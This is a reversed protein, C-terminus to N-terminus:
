RGRVREEAEQRVNSRVKDSARQLLKGYIIRSLKQSDMPRALIQTMADDTFVRGLTKPRSAMEVSLRELQTGFGDKAQFRLAAENVTRDVLQTWRDSAGLNAQKAVAELEADWETTQTGQHRRVASALERLAEDAQAMEAFVDEGHIDIFKTRQENNWHRMRQHGEISSAVSEGPALALSQVLADYNSMGDPVTGGSQRIKERITPDAADSLFDKSLDSNRATKVLSKIADYYAEPRLRNGLPHKIGENREFERARLDMNRNDVGTFWSMVARVDSRPLVGIDEATNLVFDRTTRVAKTMDGSAWASSVEGINSLGSYALNATPVLQVVRGPDGELSSKVLQAVPGGIMQTATNGLMFKIPASMWQRGWRSFGNEGRIMDAFAYALASGVNGAVAAGLTLRGAFKLSDYLDQKALQTPKSRVAALSDHVNKLATVTNATRNTAWRVYRFLKNMIPSDAAAPGEGQGRRSSLLQVYDRQYQTKLVPDATGNMLAAADVDSYQMLRRLVYGDFNTSQQNGWRELQAKAQGAFLTQKGVETLSGPTSVLEALRSGVQSSEAFIHNGMFDEVLGEQRVLNVAEQMRQTRTMGATRPSMLLSLGRGLDRWTGYVMPQSVFEPIDLVFSKWITAARAFTEVSQGPRFGTIMDVIAPAPSPEKGAVRAAYNRFAEQYAENVSQPGIDSIRSAAKQVVTNFGPRSQMMNVQAAAAPDNQYDKIFQARAAPSHDEGFVEAVAIGTSQKTIQQEMTPMVDNVRVEYTTGNQATWRHPMNVFRRTYDLASLAEASDNFEMMSRQKLAQQFEFELDKGTIPRSTYSQTKPDWDRVQVQPNLDALADFWEQRLANKGLLVDLDRGRTFPVVSRAAKTLPVARMTQTQPDFEYRTKGADVATDRMYKLSAQMSDVFQQEMANAPQEQGNVLLEWRARESNPGISIMQDQWRNRGLLKEVPSRSSGQAKELQRLAERAPRLLAKAQGAIQPTRGTRVRRMDDALAPNINRLLTRAMQNQTRLMKRAALGVQGTRAAEAAREVFRVLKDAGAGLASFAAGIDIFGGERAPDFPLTKQQPKSTKPPEATGRRFEPLPPPVPDGNQVAEDRLAQQETRYEWERLLEPTMSSEFASRVSKQNSTPRAARFAKLVASGFMQNTVTEAADTLWENGHSRDDRMYSWSEQFTQAPRNGGESRSDGVMPPNWDKPVQFGQESASAKSEAAAKAAAQQLMQERRMAASLQQEAAREEALRLNPEFRRESEMRSAEPATRVPEGAVPQPQESAQLREAMRESVSKRQAMVGFQEAVTRMFQDSSQLRRVAVEPDMAQFKQQRGAFKAYLRSLEKYEAASMTVDGVGNSDIIAEFQKRLPSDKKMWRVIDAARQASIPTTVTGTIDASEVASAVTERMEDQRTYRKRVNAEAEQQRLEQAAIEAQEPAQRQQESAAQAQEAENRRQLVEAESLQELEMAKRQEAQSGELLASEYERLQQQRLEEPTLPKQQVGVQDLFDANSEEQQKARKATRSQAEAQIRGLFGQPSETGAAVSALELAMVGDEQPNLRDMFDRLLAPDSDLAEFVQRMREGSPGASERAITVSEGIITDVLRDPSLTQKAMLWEGVTAAAASDYLQPAEGFTTTATDNRWPADLSERVQIDGDLRMRHDAGTAPDRWVGPTVEEFGLRQFNRQGQAARLAGLLALNDLTQRAEPGRLVIADPGVREYNPSDPSVRKNVGELLRATADTIQLEVGAGRQSLRVSNEGNFTLFVAGPEDTPSFNPEWQGRLAARTPGDAWAYQRMVPDQTAPIMEPLPEQPRQAETIGAARDAELQEGSRNIEENAQRSERDQRYAEAFRRNRDALLYTELRNADPRYSKWFAAADHPVLGKSVAIGAATGLFSMQLDGWAESDGSLGRQLLDWSNPDLTMFASAEFPAAVLQATMNRGMGMIQGLESSLTKYPIEGAEFRTYAGRLAEVRQPSLGLQAAAQGLREGLQAIPLMFPAMMASHAAARVRESDPSVAYAQAVFAGTTTALQSVNRGATALTMSLATNLGPNRSLFELGQGTQRAISAAGPALRAAKVAATELAREAVRGLPRSVITSAKGIPGGPIVFSTVHGVARGFLEAKGLRKSIEADAKEGVSRYIGTDAYHGFGRSIDLISPDTTGYQNKYHQRVNDWGVDFGEGQVASLAGAGTKHLLSAVNVFADGITKGVAASQWGVNQWFGKAEESDIRGIDAMEGFMENRLQNQTPAGVIVNPDAMEFPNGGGQPEQRVGSSPDEPLDIGPM